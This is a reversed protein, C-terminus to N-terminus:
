PFGLDGIQWWQRFLCHFSQGYLSLVQSATGHAPKRGTSVKVWLMEKPTKWSKDVQAAGPHQNAEIGSGGGEWGFMEFSHDIKVKKM